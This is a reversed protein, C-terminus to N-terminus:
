NHVIVPTGVPAWNYLWQAEAPRMNVCGHSMPHGFNNHWYTGHISYSGYFFMVWPVGPFYYGPGSMTQSRVKYRISFRGRPTPTRPLGTSVATSLVPTNGVYATLRQRSLDIDIWKRGSVSTAPNSVSSTPIILRQGRWIFNASRLGNARMLASITTGYRAAIQSLTEGRRVVHYRQAAPPAPTGRGSPIILRQGWWVFNASRLGNAQMLASITTGYRAAIQSLTEGRRVVHYRQPGSSAPTGRGSPIILRQGRWIFNASRLGNARMLASITTGYRAAIQSLTEGRRVVHYRQTGSPAPTGRGSPIILRQGRWIFNASRLGNARMLAGVTMGYRAAIQSLTEGRQVIHVTPGQAAAPAALAILCLTLVALLLWCKM